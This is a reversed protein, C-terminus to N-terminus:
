GVRRARRGSVGTRQKRLAALTDTAAGVNGVRCGRCHPVVRECLWEGVTADIRMPETFPYDYTWLEQVIIGGSTIRRGIAQILESYDFDEDLEVTVQRGEVLEMAQRRDELHVPTWYELEIDLLDSSVEDLTVPFTFELGRGYELLTSELSDDDPMDVVADIDLVGAFHDALSEDRDVEVAVTFESTM